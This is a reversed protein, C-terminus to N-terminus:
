FCLRQRAYESIFLYGCIFVLSLNYGSFYLLALAFACLLGFAATSICDFATYAKSIELRMLLFSFLMRGGDLGRVPFINVAFFLFNSLGFALLYLGQTRYYFLFALACLLLSVLPGAAATVLEAACSLGGTDAKIDAGFPYVSIREVRAGLSKMAIIHAAEHLFAGLLAIYFYVADVSFSIVALLLLFFVSIRLRGGFFCIM